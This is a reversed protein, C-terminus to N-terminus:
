NIRSFELLNLTGKNSSANSEVAASLICVAALSRTDVRFNEVLHRALASLNPFKLGLVSEAWERILTSAAGLM